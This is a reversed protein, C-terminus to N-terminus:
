RALSFWRRLRAIIPSRPRPPVARLKQRKHAFSRAALRLGTADIALVAAEDAASLGARRAEGARDQLFRTREEADTYLRALFAELSLPPQSM